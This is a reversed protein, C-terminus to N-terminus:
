EWWEGIFYIKTDDRSFVALHTLFSAPFYDPTIDRSNSGDANMMYM